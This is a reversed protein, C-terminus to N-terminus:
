CCVSCATIFGSICVFLFLALVALPASLGGYEHMTNYIWYCTGAYWLIGSVYALLFAQGPKAAQLNVSGEM